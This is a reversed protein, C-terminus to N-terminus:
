AIPGLCDASFGGPPDATKSNADLSKWKLACAESIRLGGGYLLLLLVKEATDTTSRLLATAEDVSIFDAIREPVKPAFIKFIISEDVWQNQALWKAFGRVAAWKRNRSSPALPAWAEQAKSILSVFTPEDWAYTKGHNEKEIVQFSIAPTLSTYLIKQVGLPELFQGLDTAYSKSTHDSATKQLALYKLYKCALDALKPRDQPSL